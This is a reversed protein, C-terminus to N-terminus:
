KNHQSRDYWSSKEFLRGAWFGLSFWGGDKTRVFICPEDEADYPLFEGIVFYDTTEAYLWDCYVVEDIWQKKIIDDICEFSIIDTIIINRRRTESIKGDDFYDYERGVVPMFVMDDSM